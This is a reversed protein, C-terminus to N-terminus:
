FLLGDHGEDRPLKALRLKLLCHMEQIALHINAIFAELLHFVTNLKVLRFRYHKQCLVLTRGNFARDVFGAGNLFAGLM